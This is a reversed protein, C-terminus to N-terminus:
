KGETTEHECAEEKVFRQWGFNILSKVSEYDVEKKTYVVIIRKNVDSECDCIGNKELLYNEFKRLGKKSFIGDLKFEFRNSCNSTDRDIFVSSHSVNLIFNQKKQFGFSFLGILFFLVLFKM